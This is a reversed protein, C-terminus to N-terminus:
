IENHTHTYIQRDARWECLDTPDSLTTRTRETREALSELVTRKGYQSLKVMKPCKSSPSKSSIKLGIQKATCFNLTEFHELSRRDTM